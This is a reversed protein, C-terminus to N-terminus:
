NRCVSSKIMQRRGDQVFFMYCEGNVPHLQVTYYGWKDVARQVKPDTSNFIRDLAPSRRRALAAESSVGIFVGIALLALVVRSLNDKTLNGRMLM